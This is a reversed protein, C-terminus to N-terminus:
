RTPGRAQRRDTGAQCRNKLQWPRGYFQRNLGHGGPRKVIQFQLFFQRREGVAFVYPAAALYSHEFKLTNARSITEVHVKKKPLSFFSLPPRTGSLTGRDDTLGAQDARATRPRTRSCATPRRDSFDSSASAAGLALGRRNRPSFFAGAGKSARRSSGWSRLGLRGLLRRGSRSGADSLSRGGLWGAVADAKV